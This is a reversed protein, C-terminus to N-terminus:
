EGMVFFSSIDTVYKVVFNFTKKTLVKSPARRRPNEARVPTSLTTFPRDVHENGDLVALSTRLEHMKIGFHIRKDVYILFTNNCSEIYHMDRCNVYKEPHKYIYFSRLSKEFLRVADPSTLITRSPVYGPDKCRSTAHCNAHQNQCHSSVNEIASIINHEVGGCNKMAWYVHTKIGASKDSLEPHWTVGINKRAEKTIKAVNKRVEKASHWSDYSDQVEPKDDCLFKSISSNRDHAHEKVKINTTGSTEYIEKTDHLEHKQSCREDNKTVLQHAIVKHSEIGLALVDSHYSNKRCGHRADTMIAKRNEASNDTKDKEEKMANRMSENKLTNVVHSYSPVAAARFEEKTLGIDAFNSFKEYQCPLMGFCLYAHVIKYNIM